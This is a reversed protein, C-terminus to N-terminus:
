DHPVAEFERGVQIAISPFASEAIKVAMQLPGIVAADAKKQYSIRDFELLSLKAAKLLIRIAREERETIFSM